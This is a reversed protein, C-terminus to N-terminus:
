PTMTHPASNQKSEVLDTLDSANESSCSLHLALLIVHRSMCVAYHGVTFQFQVITCTLDEFDLPAAFSHSM